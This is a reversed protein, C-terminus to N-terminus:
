WSNSIVSYTEYIIMAAM